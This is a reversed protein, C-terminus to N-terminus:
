QEKRKSYIFKGYQGLYATIESFLSLVFMEVQSIKEPDMIDEAEFLCSLHMIMINLMFFSCFSVKKNKNYSSYDTEKMKM